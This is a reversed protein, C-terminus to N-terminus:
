LKDVAEVKDAEVEGVCEGFITNAYACTIGILRGTVKVIPGFDQISEEPVHVFFQNYGSKEDYKDVGLGAGSMFSAIIRGEWSVPIESTFTKECDCSIFGDLVTTETEMVTSARSIIITSTAEAAAVSKILFIERSVSVLFIVLGVTVTMSSWFFIPSIVQSFKKM